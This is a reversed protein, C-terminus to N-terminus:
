LSRWREYEYLSMRPIDHSFYSVIEQIFKITSWTTMYFYFQVLICIYPRPHETGPEVDSFIYMHKLLISINKYHLNAHHVVSFMCHDILFVNRFEQYKIYIVDFRSIQCPFFATAPPFLSNHILTKFLLLVSTHYCHTYQMMAMFFLVFATHM